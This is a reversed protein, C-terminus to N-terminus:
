PGRPVCPRPPQAGVSLRPTEPGDAIFLLSVTASECLCFSNIDGSVHNVVVIGRGSSALPRTQRKAMERSRGALGYTALGM